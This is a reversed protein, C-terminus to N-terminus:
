QQLSDISTLAAEFDLNKKVLLTSGDAAFFDSNFSSVINFPLIIKPKLIEYQRFYKSAENPKVASKDIKVFYVRADAADFTFPIIDKAGANLSDSTEAATRIYISTNTSFSINTKFPDNVSHLYHEFFLRDFEKAMGRTDYKSMQIVRNFNKIMKPLGDIKKSLLKYVLSSELFSKQEPTPTRDSLALDIKNIYDKFLENTPVSDLIERFLTNSVFGMYRSAGQDARILVIKNADSSHAYDEFSAYKMPSARYYALFFQWEQSSPFLQPSDTLSKELAVVREALITKAADFIKKRSNKIIQTEDLMRNKQAYDEYKSYKLDLIQYQALVEHLNTKDGFHVSKEYQTHYGRTPSLIKFPDTDHIELASKLLPKQWDHLYLDGSKNAAEITSYDLVEMTAIKSSDVTYSKLFSFYNRYHDRLFPNMGRRFFRKDTALGGLSYLSASSDAIPYLKNGFVAHPIGHKNYFFGDFMAVFRQGGIHIEQSENEAFLERKMLPWRTEIKKNIKLVLTKKYAGRGSEPTLAMKPGDKFNSMHLNPTEKELSAKFGPEAIMQEFDFVSQKIKQAWIQPPFYIDYESMTMMIPPLDAEELIRNALLMSTRGNGDVMPHISVYRWQFEAALNVADLEGSKVKALQLNTWDCLDQIDKEVNNKEGYVIYGRRKNKRSVPFPLEVFRTYPNAILANYQDETLPNFLPDEGRNTRKKYVGPEVFMFSLMKQIPGLETKLHHASRRHVQKILDPTIKLTGEPIRNLFERAQVFSKYNEIGYLEFNRKGSGKATALQQKKLYVLQTVDILDEVYSKWYIKQELDKYKSKLKRLEIESYHKIGYKYYHLCSNGSSTTESRAPMAYISSLSLIMWVTALPIPSIVTM